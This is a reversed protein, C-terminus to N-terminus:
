IMKWQESRDKGIVGLPGGFVVVLMKNIQTNQARTSGLRTSKINFILFFRSNQLFMLHNLAYDSFRVIKVSSIM